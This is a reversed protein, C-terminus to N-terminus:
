LTEELLRSQKKYDGGGYSKYLLQKLKKEKSALIKPISVKSVVVRANLKKLKISKQKLLIDITSNIQELAHELDKGKLEILFLWDDETYIGKDCKLVCSNNILGGDIKYVVIEKKQKNHLKYTRNEKPERLSVIKICNHHQIYKQDHYAQFFPWKKQKKIKHAMASILNYSNKM